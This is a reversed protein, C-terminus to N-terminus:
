IAPRTDLALRARALDKLWSATAIASARADSWSTGFAEIRRNFDDAEGFSVGWAILIAYRACRISFEAEGPTKYVRTLASWPAQLIYAAGAESMTDIRQHHDREALPISFASRLSNPLDSM